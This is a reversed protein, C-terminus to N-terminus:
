WVAKRSTLSLIDWISSEVRGGFWLRGTEIFTAKMRALPVPWFGPLRGRSGEREDGVDWRESFGTPETKFYRQIRVM